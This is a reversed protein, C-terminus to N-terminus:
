NKGKGCEHLAFSLENRAATQRRRNDFDRYEVLTYVRVAPDLLLRDVWVMPRKCRPCEVVRYGDKRLKDALSM